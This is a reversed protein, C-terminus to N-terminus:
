PVIMYKEAPNAVGNILLRMIPMAKTVILFQFIEFLVYFRKIKYKVAALGLVINVFIVVWHHTL